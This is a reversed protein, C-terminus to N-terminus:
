QDTLHISILNQIPIIKTCNDDEIHIDNEIITINSYGAESEYKTNQGNYYYHIILSLDWDGSHERFGLDEIYQYLNSIQKIQYTRIELDSQPNFTLPKLNRLILPSYHIKNKTKQPTKSNNM